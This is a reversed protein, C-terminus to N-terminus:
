ANKLYGEMKKIFLKEEVPCGCIEDDIKIFNKLPLIKKNQGLKKIIPLINEQKKGKFKNRLDSPWGCIAGSGVAVVKKANTRIKKLKKEEEPTSIAGEVFAIDMPKIPKVKKLARFYNIQMKNKYEFFKTNLVEIFSIMCGECCTFSFFGVKPKMQKALQIKQQSTKKASAM